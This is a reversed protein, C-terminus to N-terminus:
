LGRVEDAAFNAVLAPLENTADLRVVLGGSEERLVVGARDLHESQQNIVKVSAWAQYQNM